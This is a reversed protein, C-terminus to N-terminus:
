NRRRWSEGKRRWSNDERPQILPDVQSELRRLRKDLQVVARALITLSSQLRELYQTPDVPAEDCQVPHLRTGRMM